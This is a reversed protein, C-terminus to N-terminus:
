EARLAEVPDVRTARRAPLWCALAGIAALVLAVAAFSVPDFPSVEYLSSRLFRALGLSAALGLFLGLGALKLGNRLVLGIVSHTTAGLAMRVGIEHTRQGVTYSLVGYLGVAALVLALAAFIGLLLVTLRETSISSAFRDDMTRFNFVPLDGAVERMAARLSPVLATSDRESRVTFTGGTPVSQTFAIYTQERTTERLGYNKIHGVVGVIQMWNSEKVPPRADYAFRKGLPDQGPFNKEVFMTDVIVARPSSEVDQAGFTRGAILPIGLTAFYDGNVQIREVSPAHGVGPVTTGEVYYTSQNGGRLPLPSVFAVQKVGPVAALRELARALLPLRQAPQRFAPGPLELDFTLIRDTSFGPDARYLNALTRLMLGTGVLLLCTLAFEGVILTARWRRGAAAGGTRTGQALAAHLDQRAAQSAPVLGFVLSTLVSAGVAFSLVWGNLAIEQLRPINAPLGARLADIAWGGLVLGAVCGLLGLLLSEVLLQRVVRGRGAGLAARITFERSRAQARALQLNAVNACAILLVFAAAGLLAWLAPRVSGFARDTFRQMEISQRANSAPYEQALQSAITRMETEATEFTVGPKLRAVAYLGPHDGRNRYQDSWLGLPAWLDTSGGPLQTADSSVGIITYFDGSLQIKEGVASDRGGFSRKWYSEGIVVTREAGAKDDDSSFLRGRLVPLGLAAFLDHSAMAGIVRETESAGVYNFSQRRSVGIATFCQQRARWDLFNPYSISMGPVQESWESVAVLRDQEPYPLPRLLVGYVVSFIATNAGIGLALTLVAVATFGPAKLLQRLAFKLDQM